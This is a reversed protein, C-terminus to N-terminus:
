FKRIKFFVFKVSSRIPHTPQIIQGVFDHLSNVTQQIQLANVTKVCILTVM